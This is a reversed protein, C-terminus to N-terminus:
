ADNDKDDAADLEKSTADERPHERPANEPLHFAGAHLAPTIIDSIMQAREEAGKDLVDQVASSAATSLDVIPLQAAALQTIEPLQLQPAIQAFLEQLQRQIPAMAQQVVRTLQEESSEEEVLLEDLRAKMASETNGAAGFIEAVESLAAALDDKTTLRRSVADAMLDTLHGPEHGARALDLVTRAATTVPLGDLDAIEGPDVTATHFRVEPQKTQRRSPTTFTIAESPLDGIGHLEAATEHSVVAGHLGTDGRDAAMVKPDLALWQARVELVTGFPTASTAYVGHRVRVLVGHDVLRSLMFAPVGAEKAQASTLLGWQQSALDSVIETAEGIRM